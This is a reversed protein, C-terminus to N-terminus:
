LKVLLGLEGRSPLCLKYSYVLLPLNTVSLNNLVITRDAFTVLYM